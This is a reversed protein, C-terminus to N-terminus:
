LHTNSVSVLVLAVVAVAGCVASTRYARVGRRRAAAPWEDFLDHVTARRSRAVLVLGKVLQFIGVVALVVAIGLIATATNNQAITGGQDHPVFRRGAASTPREVAGPGLGSSRLVRPTRCVPRDGDPVAQM